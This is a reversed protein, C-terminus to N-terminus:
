LKDICYYLCITFVLGVASAIVRPEQLHILLDELM